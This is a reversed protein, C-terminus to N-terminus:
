RTKFNRVKELYFLWKEKKAHRGVALHKLLILHLDCWKKPLMKSELLHSEFLKIPYDKLSALKAFKEYFSLVCGYNIDTYLLEDKLDDRPVVETTEEQQQQEQTDEDDNEDDEEDEDDDDDDDDENDEKKRRDVHTM